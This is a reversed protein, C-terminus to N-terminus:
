KRKYDEGLADRELLGLFSEANYLKYGFASAGVDANRTGHEDKVFWRLVAPTIILIKRYSSDFSYPTRISYPSTFLQAFSGWRTVAAAGKVPTATVYGDSDVSINKMRGRTSYVRCEYVERGVEVTFNSGEYPWLFSRYLRYPGHLRYRNKHCIQRLRVALRRRARLVRINRILFLVLAFAGIWAALVPLAILMSVATAAVGLMAVITQTSVTYFLGIALYILIQRFFGRGEGRERAPLATLHDIASRRGFYYALLLLPLTCLMVLARRLLYSRVVRLPVGIACIGFDIPLAFLVVAMLALEIGTEADRTLFSLTARHSLRDCPLAALRERLARDGFTAMRATSYLFFYAVFLELPWYGPQEEFRIRIMWTVFLYFGLIFLIRAACGIYCFVRKYTNPM